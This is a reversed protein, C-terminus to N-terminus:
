TDVWYSFPVDLLYRELVERTGELVRFHLCRKLGLGSLCVRLDEPWM